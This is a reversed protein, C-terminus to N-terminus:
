ELLQRIDYVLDEVATGYTERLRWKGEPDLVFTTATHSILYGLASGSSTNKEFKVDFVQYLSELDAPPGTLGVFDPNFADVHLQLRDPTDREPDVTVFVFRVREVDSGLGQHVKRWTALTTPCVDPCSTYGFFLLVVNGQQDSLRFPQEHEDILTVDPVSPPEDLPSGRFSPGGCASLVIALLLALSATRRV